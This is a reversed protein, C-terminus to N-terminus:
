RVISIVDASLKRENFLFNQALDSLKGVSVIWGLLEEDVIRYRINPESHCTKITPAFHKRRRTRTKQPLPIGYHRALWECAEIFDCSLSMMVMDIVSGHAGCAFCIWSNTKYYISMSPNRDTHYPNVCRYKKYRGDIHLDECVKAIPIKKIKENIFYKDM